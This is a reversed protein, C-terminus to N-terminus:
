WDIAEPAASFLARVDPIKDRQRKMEAWVVAHGSRRLASVLRDLRPKEAGSKRLLIYRHLLAAYSQYAIERAVRLSERLNLRLVEITYKAREHEKTGTPHNEQFLFTSRLDLLLFEMPDERRPDILLPDGAEPPTVPARRPRTVDVSEGTRTSFVKFRNNKPGNCPGCAYLYNEWVFVLEPYLDKPRLHEVEDAASDECYMCRATGGCMSRLTSRVVAFTDDTPKNRRSFEEKAVIVRESYTPRADVDRQYGELVTATAPPLATVPLRIM